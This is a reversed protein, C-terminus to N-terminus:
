SADEEEGFGAAVNLAYIDIASIRNRQEEQLEVYKEIEKQINDIHSNLKAKAEDNLTILENPTGERVFEFKNLDLGGLMPKLFMDYNLKAEQTSTGFVYFNVYLRGCNVQARYIGRLGRRSIQQHIRGIRKHLRNTRRTIASAHLLDGNRKTFNRRIYRSTYWYSGLDLRFIDEVAWGCALARTRDGDCHEHKLVPDTKDSGWREVEYDERKFGKRGKPGQPYKRALDTVIALREAASLVKPQQM